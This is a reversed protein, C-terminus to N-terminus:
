RRLQQLDRQTVEIGYQQLYRDTENIFNVEADQNDFRFKEIAPPDIPRISYLEVLTILRGRAPRAPGANEEEADQDAPEDSVPPPDSWFEIRVPLWQGFNTEPDPKAAIAVRVRTPHLEPWVGLGNEAMIQQRREPLLDGTIVWVPQDVLTYRAATVAYDRRITGLMETWGGVMLRPSIGLDDAFIQGRATSTQFWEGLRGVDVRRLSVNGAIETRTWALRGDSIQQFHHKGDGDHMTVQLHYRGTGGGAQEYTGVGVVERGATWVSERVKADFAPGEALYQLVQDLLAGAQSSAADQADASRIFPAFVAVLLCATVLSQVPASKRRPKVPTFRGIRDHPDIKM